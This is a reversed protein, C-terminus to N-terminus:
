PDIMDTSFLVAYVSVTRSECISCSHISRFGLETVQRVIISAMSSGGTFLEAM